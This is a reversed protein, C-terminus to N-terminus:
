GQWLDMDCQRDPQARQCHRVMTGTKVATVLVPKTLTKVTTNVPTYTVTKFPAPVPMPMPAPVPTYTVTKGSHPVYVVPAMIGKGMMQQLKRVAGPFFPQAQHDAGARLMRKMDTQQRQVASLLLPLNCQCQLGRGRSAKSCGSM